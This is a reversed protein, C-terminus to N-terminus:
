NCQIQSVPFHDPSERPATSSLKPKRRGDPSRWIRWRGNPTCNIRAFARVTSEEGYRIHERMTRDALDVDRGTVASTLNSHFGSPTPASDILDYLWNFILLSNKEILEPLMSVGSYEAIRLHLQMHYGQVAFLFEADRDTITRRSLADLQEGMRVLEQRQQLSAREAVLRAAQAELAERITYRERIDRETPMRVRTGVRPKSEVLGQDELRQIAACIPLMSMKLEAALKRRSLVSGLALKGRLIQNRIGLYAQESLSERNEAHFKSTNM